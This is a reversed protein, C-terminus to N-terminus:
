QGFFRAKTNESPNVALTSVNLRSRSSPNMGFSDELRGLQESLSRAIAVYPSQQLYRIKGNEDRLPLTEGTKAIMQEAARWRVWLVAYRTLANADVRGTVGMESLIKMVRRFERKADDGLWQPCVPKGAAVPEKASARDARYTGRAQKIASPTPKPGRMGM